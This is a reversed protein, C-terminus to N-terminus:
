TENFFIEKTRDIMFQWRARPMEDDDSSYRVRVRLAVIEVSDEFLRARRRRFNM